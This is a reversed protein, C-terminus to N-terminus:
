SCGSWKYFMFSTLTLGEDAGPANSKDYGCLSAPDLTPFARWIATMASWLGDPGRALIEDLPEPTNAIQYRLRGITDGQDSILADKADIIDNLDAKDSRLNRIRKAQAEVTDQLDAKDARLDAIRDNKQAIQQQLTPPAAAVLVLLIPLVLLVALRKRM